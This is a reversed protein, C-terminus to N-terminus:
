IRFNNRRTYKLPLPYFTERNLSPFFGRQSLKILVRICNIIGRINMYIGIKIFMFLPFRFRISDFREKKGEEEEELLCVRSGM